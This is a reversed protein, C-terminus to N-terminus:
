EQFLALWQFQLDNPSVPYLPDAPCQRIISVAIVLFGIPGSIARSSVSPGIQHCIGEGMSRGLIPVIHDSQLNVKEVKNAWAILEKTVGFICLDLIFISLSDPLTAM